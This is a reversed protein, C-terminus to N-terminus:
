RLMGARRLRDLLLQDLPLDTTIQDFHAGLRAATARLRGTHEALATRYAGLVRSTATIEVVTGTEVDRLALDGSLGPDLEDPTLLQLLVVEQGSQRLAAVAQAPDSETLFDSILVSVGRPLGVGALSRVVGFDTDRGEPMSALSRWLRRCAAMGRQHPVRTVIRDAFGIVGVRDGSKSGVYALAGALGCAARLKSPTGWAMSASADVLLTLALDDEGVYLRLLLRDSRAYANWDVRRFDDGPVYSRFDAFEVSAGPRPSRRGGPALGVLPRRVRLSLRDLRRLLEPTPGLEAAADPAPM